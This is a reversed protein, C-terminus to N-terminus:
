MGVILYIQICEARRPMEPRGNKPRIRCFVKRCQRLIDTAMDNRFDAMTATEVTHFESGSYRFAIFTWSHNNFDQLRKLESTSVTM